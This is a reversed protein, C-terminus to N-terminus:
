FLAIIGLSALTVIVGAILVGLIIALYSKRRKIGFLWSLISGTWAGTGPLPIAVLLLLALFEAKTGIKNELKRRTRNVYRKFFSEYWYYKLFHSHVNDLFFFIVPVVLFNSIVAIVYVLLPSMGLALGLPIGGRLEIVPLASLLAVKLIDLM